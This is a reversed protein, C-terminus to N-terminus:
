KGQILAPGRLGKSFTKRRALKKEIKENKKYNCSGATHLPWQYALVLHLLKLHLYNLAQTSPSLLEYSDKYLEQLKENVEGERSALAQITLCDGALVFCTQHLFGGHNSNSKAEPFQILAFLFLSFGSQLPSVLFLISIQFIFFLLCISHKGQNLNRSFFSTM